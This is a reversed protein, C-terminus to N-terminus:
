RIAYGSSGHAHDSISKVTRRSHKMRAAPDNAHLWASQEVSRRYPRKALIADEYESASLLCLVVPSFQITNQGCSITYGKEQLFTSMTM